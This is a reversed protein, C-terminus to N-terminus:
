RAVKGIKFSEFYISGSGAGFVNGAALGDLTGKRGPMTQKVPQALGPGSVTCEVNKDPLFHLVVNYTKGKEILGLDRSDDGRSIDLAAKGEKEGALRLWVQGDSYSMCLLSYGGATKGIAGFDMEIVFDDGGKLSFTPLTMNNDGDGMKFTLRGDKITYDGLNGGGTVTWGDPLGPGRFSANMLRGDCKVAQAQASVTLAACLV